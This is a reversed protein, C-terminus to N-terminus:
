LRYVQLLARRMGPPWFPETWGYASAPALASLESAPLLAPVGLDNSDPQNGAPSVATGAAGCDSPHESAPNDDPPSGQLSTAQHAVDHAAAMTAVPAVPAAHAVSAMLVDHALLALVLVLGGLWSICKLHRKTPM